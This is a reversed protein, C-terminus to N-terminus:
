KRVRLSDVCQSAVYQGGRAECRGVDKGSCFILWVFMALTAVTVVAVVIGACGADDKM